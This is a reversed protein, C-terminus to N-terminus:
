VLVLFFFFYVFCAMKYYRSSISKGAILSRRLVHGQLGFDSRSYYRFRFLGVVSSDVADADADHLGLPRKEVLLKNARDCRVAKSARDGRGKDQGESQLPVHLCSLSLVGSRQM